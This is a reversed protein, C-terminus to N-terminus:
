NLSCTWSTRVTTPAMVGDVVLHDALGTNMLPEGEQWGREPIGDFGVLETAAFAIIAIIGNVTDPSYLDAGGGEDEIQVSLAYPVSVMRIPDGASLGTILTRTAISRTVPNRASASTAPFSGAYRM